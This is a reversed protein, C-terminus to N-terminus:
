WLIFLVKGNLFSVLKFYFLIYVVFIFILFIILIIIFLSAQTDVKNSVGLVFSESLEDILVRFHLDFLDNLEKMTESNIVNNSMLQQTTDGVTTSYKFNLNYETLDNKTIDSKSQILKTAYYMKQSQDIFYTIVLEM